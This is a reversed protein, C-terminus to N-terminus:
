SAPSSDRRQERVNLEKEMLTPMAPSARHVAAVARLLVRTFYINSSEGFFAATHEEAFSMAMGNTSADEDRPEELGIEGIVSEPAIAPGPALSQRSATEPPRCPDNNM